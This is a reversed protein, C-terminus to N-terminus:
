EIVGESNSCGGCDICAREIKLIFRRECKTCTYIYKNESVKGDLAFMGGTWILEGGCEKCQKQM